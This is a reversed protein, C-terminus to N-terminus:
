NQDTLQGLIEEFAVGDEMPVELKDSVLLCDHIFAAAKAVSQYFDLKKVADGALISAFVDGTGHRFPLVKKTAIWSPKRGKELALNFVQDDMELGSIVAKGPGLDVLADIIDELEQRSFDSRYDLDLLSCAETLNPTLVDAMRALEKMGACMGPTYTPYIKGHDGMVPDVILCTDPSRFLACFDKVKQIQDESGLFGTYIGNFSLDLKKWEEMWPTMDETLDHFFYSPYATHNSLICTPLVSCQIQMASLIPLSVTLSCRGFGSLDNILAITKQKSRM